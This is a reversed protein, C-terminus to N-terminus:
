DEDTYKTYAVPFPRPLKVSMYNDTPGAIAQITCGTLSHTGTNIAEDTILLDALM